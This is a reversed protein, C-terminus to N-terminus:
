NKGLGLHTYTPRKSTFEKMIDSKFIDTLMSITEKSPTGMAWLDQTVYLETYKGPAFQGLFPLNYFNKVTSSAICKGGANIVDEVGTTIFILEVDTGAIAAAKAAAVGEYPITRLNLKPSSNNVLATWPLVTIPAGSMAVNYTQTGVLDKLTINTKKPSTCLYSTGSGLNSVLQLAPFDKQAPCRGATNPAIDGGSMVVFGNQQTAAKALAEHCSKFFEQTVTHGKSRLGAIVPSSWQDTGGGPPYYYNFNYTAATSVTSAAALVSAILYKFITNM